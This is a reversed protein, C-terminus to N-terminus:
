RPGRQRWSTKQSPSQERSLLVVGYRTAEPTAGPTSGIRMNSQADALSQNILEVLTEISSGPPDVQSAWIRCIIERRSLSRDPAALLVEVVALEKHTVKLAQGRSTLIIARRDLRLDGSLLVDADPKLRLRGKALTELAGVLDGFAFPMDLTLDPGMALGAVPNDDDPAVGLILVPTGVRAHRLRQCLDCGSAPTSGPAIIVVDAAWRELDRHADSHDAVVCLDHGEAILGRELVDSLRKDEGFILVRM